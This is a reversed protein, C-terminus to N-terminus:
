GGYDYRESVQIWGLLSREFLSTVAGTRYNNATAEEVM